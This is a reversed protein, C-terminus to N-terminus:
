MLFQDGSEKQTGKGDISRSLCELDKSGGPRPHPTHGSRLPKHATHQNQAQDPPRNRDLTGSFAMIMM